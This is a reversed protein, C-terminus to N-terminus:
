LAAFAATTTEAAIVGHKTGAPVGWDWMLIVERVARVVIDNITRLMQQVIAGGDNLQPVAIPGLHYAIEPTGYIWQHTSGAGSDPGTGPYGADAVVINGMATLWLQGNMQIAENTVLETLVEPSVHIMARRGGLMAGVGQEVLGLAEMPAAAAGTVVKPDNTLWDNDLTQAQAQTGLWLEKAIRFSQTAELQRRARGEFDRSQWGATTCHDEAWVVFPDSTTIAPNTAAANMAATSGDCTVGVVGGGLTTEPAWKMGHEWDVDLNKIESAAFLLSYRPETAQPAEVAQKTSFPSAM